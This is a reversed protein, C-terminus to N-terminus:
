CWIDLRRQLDDLDTTMSTVTAAVADAHASYQTLLARAEDLLSQARDCDSPPPTTGTTVMTQYMGDAQEYKVNYDSQLQVATAPPPTNGGYNSLGVLAAILIILALIGVILIKVWM